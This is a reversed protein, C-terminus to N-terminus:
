RSTGAALTTPRCSLRFTILSACLREAVDLSPLPGVVLRRPEVRKLQPPPEPESSTLFPRLGAFLQPHASRVGVWREHLVKMSRASGIDVGYETAKPAAPPAPHAGAAVPSPSFPPPLGSPSPVVPAVVSAITAPTMPAPLEDNPWIATADAKAAGIQRTVSGTVDDLHHEVAALRTMIRDRDQALDRVTQALQQTTTETGYTRGPPVALDSRLASLVVAVRQVGVESRSALVAVLMAAAATFGWSALRRLKRMTFAPKATIREPIVNVTQARDLM